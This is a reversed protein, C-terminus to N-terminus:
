WQVERAWAGLEERDMLAENRAAQAEVAQAKLVSRTMDLARAETFRGLNEYSEIMQSVILLELEPSAGNTDDHIYQQMQAFVALLQADRDAHYQVVLARAAVVNEETTM